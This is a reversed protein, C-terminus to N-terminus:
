TKMRSNSQTYPILLGQLHLQSPCFDNFRGPYKRDRQVFCHGNHGVEISTCDGIVKVGNLHRGRM